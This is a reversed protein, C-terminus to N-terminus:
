NDNIKDGDVIPIGAAQPLGKDISDRTIACVRGDATTFLMPRRAYRLRWGERENVENIKNIHGVATVGLTANVYNGQRFPKKM